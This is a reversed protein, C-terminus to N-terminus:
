IWFLGLFLSLFRDFGALGALGTLGTWKKIEPRDIM